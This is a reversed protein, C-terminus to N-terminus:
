SAGFLERRRLFVGIALCLASVISVAISVYILALGDLGVVETGSNGFVVGTILLAIALVVFLGSLIIM